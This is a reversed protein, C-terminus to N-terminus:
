PRDRGTDVTRVDPGAPRTLGRRARRRLGAPLGPVASLRRGRREALSRFPVRHPATIRKANHCTPLCVIHTTDSGVYRVGARALDELGDPDLGEAACSRGSTPRAASRTSASRATRASSATARSSSRCRTTASRRGSPGSRRRAASRPPSGATRGSRAARSRSPRRGSTASSSAHPRAPGPRDPGAPRRRAPADIAPRSSPRAATRRRLGPARDPGTTRARVDRRRPGGGGGLRRARELGRRAARDPLRDPRLPRGPRGRRPRGPRPHDPATTALDAMAAELIRDDTTMRDDGRSAPAAGAEYAARLQALGRHVQAKVTGEPRGLAIAVEPYSLGDVHRLVVAERHAPPLTPPAPGGLARREARRDAVAAPGTAAGARPEAALPLPSRGAVATARTAPRRADTPIPVPEPRDHGAVAPAPARPDPGRRLRGAGPLGPRLRGPRGGRCRGPRGAVRLAISYLRDQHALVLAEFTGDLDATLGAILADDTDM